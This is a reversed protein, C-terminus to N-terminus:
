MQLWWRWFHWSKELYIVILRIEQFLKKGKSSPELGYMKADEFGPCESEPQMLSLLDAFSWVYVYSKQLIVEHYWLLVWGPNYPSGDRWTPFPQSPWTMVMDIYAVLLFNPSSWWISGRFVLGSVSGKQLSFGKGPRRKQPEMNTKLATGSNEKGM